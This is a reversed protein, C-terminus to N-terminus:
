HGLGERHYLPGVEDAAADDDELAAVMRELAGPPVILDNNVVFFTEYGERKFIQYALNWSHTLGRPRDKEVV